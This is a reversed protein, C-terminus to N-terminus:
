LIDCIWWNIWLYYFVRSCNFLFLIEVSYHRKFSKRKELLNNKFIKDLNFLLYFELKIAFSINETKYFFM